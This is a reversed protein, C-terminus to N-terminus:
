KSDGEHRTAVLRFGSAFRGAFRGALCNAQMLGPVGTILLDALPGSFMTSGEFSSVKFGASELRRLITHKTFWQVHPCVEDALTSPYTPVIQDGFLAQKIGHLLRIARIRRDIPHVIRKYLSQDFEFWGYGNPVTILLRGGPRLKSRLLDLIEDLEPDTLHELVESAIIADLSRDPVRAISEAFLISPDEGWIELQQRGVRISEEHLDWGTIKTGVRHLPACLMLGTGCGFEAVVDAPALRSKVWDIRSRSGYSNEPPMRTAQSDPLAHMVPHYRRVHWMLAIASGALFALSSASLVRAADTATTVEAFSFAAVTVLLALAPALSSLWPMGRAALLTQFVGATPLALMIPLMTRIIEASPTFKPGFLIPVMIPAMVYSVVVASIAIGGVLALSKAFERRVSQGTAITRTMTAIRTQSLAGLVACLSEVIGLAVAFYAVEATGSREALLLTVCRPSLTALTLAVWSRLGYRVEQTATVPPSGIGKPERIVRRVIPLAALMSAAALAAAAVAASQQGIMLMAGILVGGFIRALVDTWAFLQLWGMGLASAQILMLLLGTVALLAVCAVGSSGLAALQPSLGLTVLTAMVFCLLLWSLSTAGCARGLLRRCSGPYKAIFYPLSSSFGMAAVQTGIAGWATLEALLGRSEVGLGRALLTSTGISLIIGASRASLVGFASALEGKTLRLM